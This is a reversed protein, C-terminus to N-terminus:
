NGAQVAENFVRRRGEPAVQHDFVHGAAAACKRDQACPPLGVSPHSAVVQERERM